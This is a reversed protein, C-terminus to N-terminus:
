QADRPWGQRKIRSHNISELRSELEAALQRSALTERRAIPLAALADLAKRYAKEAEDQRGARELIEGRRALWRDKRALEALVRDVRSLAAEYRGLQVEFDIARSQLVILHGLQHLGADLVLVAEGLYADGSAALAEALELYFTPGAKPQLSVAVTFDDVAALPQGLQRYVRGRYSRGGVHEPHAAVFRDFSRGAEEPRGAEYLLRGRHFDVADFEPDLDAVRELDELGKDWHESIRHLEARELYLEANDPDRALMFTIEEIREHPEDHAALPVVGCLLLSLSACLLLGGISAFSSKGKM